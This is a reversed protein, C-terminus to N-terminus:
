LSAVLETVPSRWTLICMMGITRDGRHISQNIVFSIAISDHFRCQPIEHSRRVRPRATCTSCWAKLM